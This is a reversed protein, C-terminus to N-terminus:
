GIRLLPDGRSCLGPEIFRRLEEGRGLWRRGGFLLSGDSSPPQEEGVRHVAPARPNEPAEVVKEEAHHDELDAPRKSGSEPSRVREAYGIVERAPQDVGVEDADEQVREDRHSKPEPRQTDLFRLGRGRRSVPHRKPARQQQVPESLSKSM